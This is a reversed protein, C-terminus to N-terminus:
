KTNWGGRGAHGDHRRLKMSLFETARDRVLNTLPCSQAFPGGTTCDVTLLRGAGEAVCEVAAPEVRAPISTM